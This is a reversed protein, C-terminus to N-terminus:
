KKKFPSEKSTKFYETAFFTEQCSSRPRSHWMSSQSHTLVPTNYWGIEQATTQPLRSKQGPPLKNQSIARKLSSSSFAEQIPDRYITPIYERGGSCTPDTHTPDSTLTTVNYPNFRFKGSFGEFRKNWQLVERLTKLKHVENQPDVIQARPKRSM